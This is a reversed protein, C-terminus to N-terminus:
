TGTSEEAGASFMRGAMRAVQALQTNRVRAALEFGQRGHAGTLSLDSIVLDYHARDLFEEADTHTAAADVRWGDAALTDSLAELASTNDEVILVPRDMAM